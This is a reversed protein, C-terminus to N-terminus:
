LLASEKSVRAWPPQLDPEIEELELLLDLLSVSSLENNMATVATLFHGTLLSAINRGVPCHNSIKQHMGLVNASSDDEVAIYIDYLSINEPNMVLKAGSPGPAVHILNAKKLKSFINRIIVANVGTSEALLDSTVKHKDQFAAIALLVHVAIPFRTSVRM